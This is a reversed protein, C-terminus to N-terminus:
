NTGTVRRLNRPALTATSPPTETTCAQPIPGLLEEMTQTIDVPARGSQVLADKIRQNIPWPWLPQNTLQGNVYRKCIGPVETWISKDQGIAAAMTTGWRLNDCGNTAAPDCLGRKGTIGVANVITNNAGRIGTFNFSGISFWKSTPAVVAVIDKVLNNQTCGFTSCPPDDGPWITFMQGADFADDADAYGISGLLQSNTTASLVFPGENASRVSSPKTDRTGINNEFIVHNQSKYGM